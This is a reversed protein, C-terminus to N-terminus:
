GGVTVEIDYARALDALQQVHAHTDPLVGHLAYPRDLQRWKPEGLRHYPLIDLAQVHGLGAVFAATAQVNEPSDNCDPVLPLRVRVPVGM